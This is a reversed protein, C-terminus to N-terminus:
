EWCMGYGQQIPTNLRFYQNSYHNLQKDITTFNIAPKRNLSSKDFWFTLILITVVIPVLSKNPTQNRPNTTSQSKCRSQFWKIWPSVIQFQSQSHNPNVLKRESRFYLHSNNPNTNLNHINAIQIWRELRTRKILPIQSSYIWTVNKTGSAKIIQCRQDMNNEFSPM